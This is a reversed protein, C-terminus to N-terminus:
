RSAGGIEDALQMAQKCALFIRRGQPTMREWVDAVTVQPDGGNYKELLEVMREAAAAADGDAQVALHMTRAAAELDCPQAQLILQREAETPKAGNSMRLLSLDGADIAAALASIDTRTLVIVVDPNITM